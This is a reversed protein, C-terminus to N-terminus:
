RLLACRAEFPAMDFGREVLEVGESAVARLMEMVLDISAAGATSPTLSALVRETLWLRLQSIAQVYFHRQDDEELLAQLVDRVDTPRLALESM